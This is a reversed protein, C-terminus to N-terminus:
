KNFLNIRPVFHSVQALNTLKREVIELKLPQAHQRETKEEEEDRHLLHFDNGPESCLPVEADGKRDKDDDGGGPKQEAAIVLVVESGDLRQFASPQKREYVEGDQEHHGCDDDKLVRQVAM